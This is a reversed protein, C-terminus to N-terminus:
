CGGNGISFEFEQSVKIGKSNEAPKWKPMNSIADLLLKDTQPDGSSASLKVHTVAGIEDVTFSILGDHFHNRSKESIKHFVNEEIYKIVANRGGVYEAEIEPIVTLTINVNRDEMANTVANKTKYGANVVIDAALDASNLIHKQEATLTENTGAATMTKGNCTATIKTSNYYQVWNSPYGAIFDRMLNAHILKERTVPNRYRGRVEYNLRDSFGPAFDHEGYYWKKIDTGDQAFSSLAFLLTAVTIFLTKM